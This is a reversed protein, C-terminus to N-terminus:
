RLRKGTQVDYIASPESESGLEGTLLADIGKPFQLSLEHVDRAPAHGSLNASTSVVPGQISLNHAIPHNSMRIAVTNQDGCLWDPIISSKPFIWTVPGPWTARVPALLHDSLPEILSKLQSWDAILIIFGKSVLRQKLTLVREVAEKNFPDCALGYIAETPHAIIKGERLLQWADEIQSIIKMKYKPM